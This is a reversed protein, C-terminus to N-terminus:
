VTALVAVTIAKVRINDRWHTEPEKLGLRRTAFIGPLNIGTERTYGIGGSYRPNIELLHPKGDADDRTQVNILGDCGFHEAAQVALRVAESDREFTQNMGQKRRGVFAVAKGQECVMDVSCESGPMYPMLLMPPRDDSQRYANLYAEFSTERADPNAFCRFDDVGAKFRWFGHGFIGVTPKICVEGTRSLTEYAAQLEETNSASIGPICALGAQEAAATFLSKDDVNIFTQLSTGGTVLDFGEAVFRERHAEYFSGVRGAIIVKVGLERATELVWDIREANNRPEQLAVDAQGTIESRDQRHSAIIRVSDPLAERAGMIVERQSSQGELFWIM